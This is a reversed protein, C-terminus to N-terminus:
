QTPVYMFNDLGASDDNIDAFQDKEYCWRIPSSGVTFDHTRLTWGVVGIFEAVSVDDIYTVLADQGQNSTVRSYYSLQGAGLVATDITTHVCTTNSHTIRGSQLADVGDQTILTQSFWPPNGSRSVSSTFILGGIDLALNFRSAVRVELTTITPPALSNAATLTYFHELVPHVAVDNGDLSDLVCTNNYPLIQLNLSALDLGDDNATAVCTQPAGGENPIEIPFPTTFANVAVSSAFSPAAERVALTINAMAVVLNANNGMITHPTQAQTQYTRGTISCTPPLTRLGQPLAPNASCTNISGVGAPFDISASEGVDLTVASPTPAILTPIQVPVFEGVTLAIRFNSTGSGNTAALQFVDRSFERRPGTAFGLTQLVCTGETAVLELNDNIFTTLGRDSTTVTCTDPAGGQNVFVIPLGAVREKTLTVAPYDSMNPIPEVPAYTEIMITRTNSGTSASATIDHSSMTATAIETPYGTIACTANDISLGAPLPPSATCSIIPDGTSIFTITRPITQGFAFRLSTSSPVIFAGPETITILISVTDVGTVNAATITYTAQSTVMAPIGSIQCSRNDPTNALILGMPLESSEAKIACGNAQIDGGNNAFIFTTIAQSVTYFQASPVLDPAKPNVTIMVSAFFNGGPNSAEITYTNISSASEPIGTIQCTNGSVAVRLGAPLSAPSGGQTSVSCGDTTAVAGGSNTFILPPINKGATYTEATTTGLIPALPTIAIAVTATSPGMDNTAIIAYTAQNTVVTPTGSIQCTGDVVAVDLGVPLTDPNDGEPNIMCGDEQVPSGRNTFTIPTIMAGGQMRVPYSQVGEVNELDPAVFDIRLSAMAGSPGGMNTAVIVYTNVESTETPIGIIQCTDGSSVVELGKPLADPNAGASDIECGDEVVAGGRNTFTIPEISRGRALIQIGAINDLDPARRSVKITVTATVTGGANTAAITYRTPTLLKTPVGTIRCTGGFVEFMLGEPLTEPTANSAISCGDEAVAGGRNTFTIPLNTSQNITLPLTFTISSLNPARIVEIMVTATSAPSTVNTARITYTALETPM